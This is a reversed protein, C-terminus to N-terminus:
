AAREFRGVVDASGAEVEIIRTSLTEHELRILWQPNALRDRGAEPWEVLTIAEASLYEELALTDEDAIHDLRYLDLHNVTVPGRYVNAITFSPSRVADDLRLAAALYRVLQTKGSGLPGVLLVLDGPRLARALREALAQLRSLGVGTERLIVV